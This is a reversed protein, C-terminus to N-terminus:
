RTKGTKRLQRVRQQAVFETRVLIQREKLRIAAMLAHRQEYGGGVSVRAAQERDDEMSHSYGQLLEKCQRALASLALQECSVGNISPLNGEDFLQVALQEVESELQLEATCFALYPLLGAPLADIRVAFTETHPINRATLAQEKATRFTDKHHLSLMIHAADHPNSGPPPCFGYSLLLEGSSKPGYSIFVQLPAFLCLPLKLSNYMTAESSPM